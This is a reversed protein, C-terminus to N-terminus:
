RRRIWQAVDRGKVYVWRAGIVLMGGLLLPVVLLLFGVGSIMRLILDETDDATWVWGRYKM